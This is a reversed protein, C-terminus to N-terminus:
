SKKLFRLTEIWQIQENNSKEIIPYYEVSQNSNLARVFLDSVTSDYIYYYDSWCAGNDSFKKVTNAMVGDGLTNQLLYSYPYSLYYKNVGNASNSKDLFCYPNKSLQPELKAIADEIHENEEKTFVEFEGHGDGGMSIKNGKEIITINQGENKQYEFYVGLSNSKFVELKNQAVNEQEFDSVKKLLIKDKLTGGLFVGAYFGIGGVLLISLVLYVAKKM